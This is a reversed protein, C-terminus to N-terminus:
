ACSEIKQLNEIRRQRQALTLEHPVWRSSLKKLKLYRKLTTSVSGHSIDLIYAIYDISIHLDDNVLDGVDDINQQTIVAIPHGQRLDDELSERGSVVGQRYATTLESHIEASNLDLLFRTRIYVRFCFKEM